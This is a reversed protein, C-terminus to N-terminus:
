AMDRHIVLAVREPDMISGDILGSGECRYCNADPDTTVCLPCLARLEPACWCNMSEVHDQAMHDNEDCPANHMLGDIVFNGIRTM